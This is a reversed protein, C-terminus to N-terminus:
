NSSTVQGLCFFGLASVTLIVGLNTGGSYYQPDGVDPVRPNENYTGFIASGYDYEKSLGCLKMIGSGSIVLFFEITLLILAIIAITICVSSFTAM